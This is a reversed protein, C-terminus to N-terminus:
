FALLLTGIASNLFYGYDSIDVNRMFMLHAVQAKDM